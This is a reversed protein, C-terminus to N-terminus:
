KQEGAARLLHNTEAKNFRGLEGRVLTPTPALFHGQYAAMITELPIGQLQAFRDRDLIKTFFAYPYLRSGWQEKFHFIGGDPPNSSQWNYIRFDHQWCWRILRDVLFYNAGGQSAEPQASMMYNDLVSGRKFICVAGAVIAAEKKVTFFAANGNNLAPAMKEFILRPIPTGGLAEIRPCHVAQYWAMLEEASTSQAFTFGAQNAKQLNRSLRSRRHYDRLLVRGNKDMYEALPVAQIFTQMQTQPAMFEEIYGAEEPVLPNSAISISLCGERRAFDELAALMDRYDQRQRDERPCSFAGLTGPQINSSLIAGFPGRFLYFSMAAGPNQRYLYIPEDGAVDKVVSAWWTSQQIFSYPDRHIVADFKEKEAESQFNILQFQSSM